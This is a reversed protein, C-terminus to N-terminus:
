ATQGGGIFDMIEDACLSRFEKSFSSRVRAAAAKLRARRDNEVGTGVLSIVIRGGELSFAVESGPAVGAAVRIHRPITVQGKQTVLM